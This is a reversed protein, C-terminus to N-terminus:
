IKEKANDLALWGAFLAVFYEKEVVHFVEKPCGPSDM